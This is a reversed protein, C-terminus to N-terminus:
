AYEVSLRIGVEMSCERFGVSLLIRHWSPGGGLDKDVCYVEFVM